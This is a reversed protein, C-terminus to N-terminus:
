ERHPSKKQKFPAVFAKKFSNKYYRSLGYLVGFLVAQTAISLATVLAITGAESIPTPYNGLFNFNVMYLILITLPSVLIYITYFVKGKTSLSFFFQHFVHTLPRYLLFAVFLVEAMPYQHVLNDGVYLQGMDRTGNNFISNIIFVKPNLGVIVTIAFSVFDTTGWYIPFVFLAWFQFTWNRFCACIGLLLWLTDMMYNQYTFFTPDVAGVAILAGLISTRILLLVTLIWFLFHNM